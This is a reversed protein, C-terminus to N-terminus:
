HRLGFDAEGEEAGGAGDAGLGEVYHASKFAAEAHDGEARATVAIGEDLL